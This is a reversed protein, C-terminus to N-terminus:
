ACQPCLGYFELEHYLKTFGSSKEIDRELAEVPCSIDLRQIRGCKTCVLYDDHHGEEIMTYYTSRDHLGLRRIIGREELKVLLRFVTARDAGTKLEKSEAIDALSLPEHSRILIELVNELARTRRLGGDRTKALAAELVKQASKKDHHRCTASHHHHLM